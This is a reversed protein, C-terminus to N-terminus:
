PSRGLGADRARVIAESRGAVHLKVFISSSYNRITKQSLSLRRAIENNNRGAALEDLVERERV